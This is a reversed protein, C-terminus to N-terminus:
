KIKEARAKSTPVSMLSSQLHHGKWDRELRLNQSVRTGCYFGIQMATKVGFRAMGAERSHACGMTCSHNTVFNPVGVSGCSCPQGCMRARRVVKIEAGVPEPLVSAANRAQM